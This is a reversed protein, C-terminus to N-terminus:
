PESTMHDELRTSDHTGASDQSWTSDQLKHHRVTKLTSSGTHHQSLRSNPLWKSDEDYKSETTRQLKQLLKYNQPWTLDRTWIPYKPRTPTKLYHRNRVNGPIIWHLPNRIDHSTRFYDSTKTKHPIMLDNLFQLEYSSWVNHPPESKRSSSSTMNPGSTFYIGSTM